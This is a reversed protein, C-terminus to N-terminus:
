SERSAASGGMGSVERRENTAAGGRQTQSGDFRAQRFCRYNVLKVTKIVNPLM